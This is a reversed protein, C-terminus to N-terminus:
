RVPQTPESNGGKKPQGDLSWERPDDPMGHRDINGAHDLIIAPYDKRRLVRGWKQMQLSLSKTPRADTMCEITVDMQAASSLDFGFTMLDCNALVLLERRAFAKIRRSREDDDMKGSVAAAPIGAANFAEAMIEAHKISTCFAVNLRGMARDRYHKVADGILVRDQEMMGALQGKAFDGGSTKVGSLDPHNPAFMRFQSLRGLRILEGVPLGMEMHDFWDGLGRGSMKWPTASLGVVWAGQAQYHRIIREIEDAGYHVEDVFVVNAPAAKDLRRALTGSTALQVKAFPNPTYGACIIGYPIRYSSLTEATQKLLERRPVIFLSRSGKALASHIMSASMVTKGAGTSAQMLISRHRRMSQRVREVLDSQDPFLNIM